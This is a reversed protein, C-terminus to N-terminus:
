RCRRTLSSGPATRVLLPRGFGGGAHFAPDTRRARTCATSFMVYPVMSIWAPEGHQRGRYAVRKGDVVMYLAVPRRGKYVTEIQMKISPGAPDDCTVNEADEFVSRLETM